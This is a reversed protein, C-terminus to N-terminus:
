LFRYEETLLALLKGGIRCAVSNGLYRRRCGRGSSFGGSGGNLINGDSGKYAQAEETACSLPELGERAGGRSRAGAGRGEGRAFAM